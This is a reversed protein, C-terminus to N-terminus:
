KMGERLEAWRRNVAAKVKRLTSSAGAFFEGGDPGYAFGIFKKSYLPEIYGKESHLYYGARPSWASTRM